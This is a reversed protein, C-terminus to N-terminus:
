EVILFVDWAWHGVRAGQVDWVKARYRFKNGFSDTRRSEKYDLELKVVDLEPLSHLENPESIGNHNVDQWLRLGTFVNDGADIAGDDNGGNASKDFVALANFGNKGIRNPPPPQATFNGFLEKGNDIAGNGDRDLALWADDSNAATWSLQEKEDKSDLDFRVGNVYNTLNFGNGSVDILIPTHYDNCQCSQYDWNNCTSMEFGCNLCAYPSNYNSHHSYNPNPVCM